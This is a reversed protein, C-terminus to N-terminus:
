LQMMKQHKVCNEYGQLLYGGTKLMKKANIKNLKTYM